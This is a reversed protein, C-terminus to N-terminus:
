MDGKKKDTVVSEIFGDKIVTKIKQGVDISNIDTIVNGNDDMSISYGRNLISKPNILELKNKKHELDEAIEDLYNKISNNLDEKSSVLDDEMDVLIEKISDSIEEISNALHLRIERQDITALEAAGTPTSARKDAVYDVLTSDIEHGVAAIVPMKSTAIARVLKEDNFASLDESAGGGRGIILTDLNYEQAKLFAKLLEKPANEGQVSSPFFYIDCIPYRRKINKVIDEIAAGGKATIVGIANPYININRKRSEDFLGEKALKKKLKELEVLIAGEGVMEIYYVLLQYTGRSPYASISACLTIEDGDKPKEKLKSAYTNFMVCSILSNEDKLSFYLHGNQGSKFNSVEGKVFLYKLNEDNTLINKVYNNIDSVSYVIRPIDM